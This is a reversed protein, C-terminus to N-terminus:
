HIHQRSIWAGVLSGATLGVLIDSPFHHFSLLRWYATILMLGIVCFLAWRKMTTSHTEKKLMLYAGVALSAVFSSHGSYFSTYNATDGGLTLPNLYVFPRPRQIILRVLNTFAGNWFNLLILHNIKRIKLLYFAGFALLLTLGEIINSPWDTAFIGQTNQFHFAWRDFAFLQEIECGHPQLCSFRGLPKRLLMAAVWLLAPISWRKIWRKNIEIPM